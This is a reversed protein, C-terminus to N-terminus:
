ISEENIMKSKVKAWYQVTSKKQYGLTGGNWNRAIVEATSNKHHYDKWIYYMEISKSASWRDRYRYRITDNQERLIRNIEDVMVRRIQLLGISPTRMHRDGIALSDGNSEVKIISQLLSDIIPTNDYEISYYTEYNNEITANPAAVASLLALITVLTKM